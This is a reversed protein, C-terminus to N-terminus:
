FYGDVAFSLSLCMIAYKESQADKIVILTSNFLTNSSTIFTPFGSASSLTARFAENEEADENPLLVFHWPVMSVNPTFQLRSINPHHYDEGSSAPLFPTTDNFTRILVEFTQESVRSGGKVISVDFMGSFPPEIFTYLQKEFGIYLATNIIIVHYM